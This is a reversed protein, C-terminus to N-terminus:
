GNGTPPLDVSTDEDITIATASVDLMEEDSSEMNGIQFYCHTM